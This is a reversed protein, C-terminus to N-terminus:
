FKQQTTTQRGTCTQRSKSASGMEFSIKNNRAVSKRKWQNNNLQQQQNVEATYNCYNTKEVNILHRGVCCMNRMWNQALAKNASKIITYFPIVQFMHTSAKQTQQQRNDGAFNRSCAFSHIFQIRNNKSTHTTCETLVIAFLFSVYRMRFSYKKTAEILYNLKTELKNNKRQQQQQREM